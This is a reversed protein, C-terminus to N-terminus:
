LPLLALSYRYINVINFKFHQLHALTLNWQAFIQHYQATACRPPFMPWTIIQHMIPRVCLMFVCTNKNYQQPQLCPHVILKARPCKSFNSFATNLRPGNRTISICYFCTETWTLRLELTYQSPNSSIKSIFIKKFAEAPWQFHQPPGCSALPGSNAWGRSQLVLLQQCSSTITTGSKQWETDFHYM